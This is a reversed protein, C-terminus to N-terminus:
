KDRGDGDCLYVRYDAVIEPMLVLNVGIKGFLLLFGVLYTPLVLSAEIGSANTRSKKGAAGCLTLNM